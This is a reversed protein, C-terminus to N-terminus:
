EYCIDYKNEKNKLYFYLQTMTAEMYPSVFLTGIGCLLLGLIMWGVFSLQLGFTKFRYSQMMRKSQEFADKKSIKPNEAVIYEIMFYSYYKMILPIYGFFAIFIYSINIRLIYVAACLVIYPIIFILSWFFLYLHKLFIIKVVNIYCESKFIEFIGSFSNDGKASKIFFRNKGVTLPMFLFINVAFQLILFGLIIPALVPMYSLLQDNSANIIDEISFRVNINSYFAYVGNSIAFVLLCVAFSIWYTNEKKLIEKANSKLEARDFM